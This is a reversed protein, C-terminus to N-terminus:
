PCTDGGRATGASDTGKGGEEALRNEVTVLYYFGVRSTPPEPDTATPAAIAQQYCPGYDTLYSLKNRYLNYAGASPHPAWEMVDRSTFLLGEV